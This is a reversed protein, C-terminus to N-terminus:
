PVRFCPRAEVGDAPVLMVHHLYLPVAVPVPEEGRAAVLQDLDVIDTHHLLKLYVRRRM